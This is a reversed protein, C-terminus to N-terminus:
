SRSLEKSRKAAVKIAEAIIKNLRKKNFIDLAADTTGGKSTVMKILNEIEIKKEKLLDITGKAMQFSLHQAKSKSLGEKISTKILCNLIYAIYAPGSGSLATVIDMQKENIEETEGVANFISKVIKKTKSDLNKSYNIATISEQALSGINPMVRIIKADKSVYKSLFSLKVGAVISIIIKDKNYTTQIEKLTGEIDQPKVCLIVIDSSNILDINNKAVKVKLLRKKATRKRRDKDSIYIQGRKVKKSAILGQIISTAMNGAGVFGIKKRSLISGKKM